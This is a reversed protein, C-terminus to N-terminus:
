GIIGQKIRTNGGLFNLKARESGKRGTAWRKGYVKLGKQGSDIWKM